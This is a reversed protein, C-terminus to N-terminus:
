PPSGQYEDLGKETIKFTAVPIVVEGSFGTEGHKYEILGEDVLQHLNFANRRKSIEKHLLASVKHRIWIENVWKQKTFLEEERIAQLYTNRPLTWIKIYKFMFWIAGAIGLLQLTLIIM